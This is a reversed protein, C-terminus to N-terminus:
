YNNANNSPRCTARYRLIGRVVPRLLRNAAGAAHALVPIYLKTRPGHWRQENPRFGRKFCAVGDSTINVLDYTDLKRHIAERIAHWQMLEAPHDGSFERRMAGAVYYATRGTFVVLIAGVLTDDRWAQIFTARGKPALWEWATKLSAYPRPSYGMLESHEQFLTYIRDFITPNVDTRILLDSNLARRIYYRTNKRFSKLVHDETQGRLELILPTSSFRHGTFMPSATFGISELRTLLVSKDELEHPYLQAYIARDKKCIEDLRQMLLMWSSADPDAPLPGHPIIFIRWPLLPIKVSLFAVGGRIVGDIECVLVHPTFGMPQYSKLWGYTQFYHAGPFDYVFCDWAAYEEETLCPRITTMIRESVTCRDNM